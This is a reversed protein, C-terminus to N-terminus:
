ITLQSHKKRPFKAVVIVWGDSEKTTVCWGRRSLLVVVDFDKRKGWLLSRLTGGERDAATQHTLLTCGRGRVLRELQTLCLEAEDLTLYSFVGEILVVIAGGTMHRQLRDYTSTDTIDGAIRVLGEQPPSLATKRKMIPAADMELYRNTPHDVIWRHGLTSYGAGVDLIIDAHLTELEAALTNSLSCRRRVIREFRRPSILRILGALLRTKSSVFTSSQTDGGKWRLYAAAEASSIM